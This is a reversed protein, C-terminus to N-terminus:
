IVIYLFLSNGFIYQFSIKFLKLNTGNPRFHGLKCSVRVTNLLLKWQRDERVQVSSSSGSLRPSRLDSRPSGLSSTSTQTTLPTSDSHSEMAALRTIRRTPSPPPSSTPSQSVSSLNCDQQKSMKDVKTKSQHSAPVKDEKKM